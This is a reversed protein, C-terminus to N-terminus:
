QLHKNEKLIFWDEQATLQAHALVGGLLDEPLCDIVWQHKNVKDALSKTEADVQTQIQEVDKVTFSGDGEKIHADALKSGLFARTYLYHYVEKLEPWRKFGGYDSEFKKYQTNAQNKLNDFSLQLIEM